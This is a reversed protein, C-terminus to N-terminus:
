AGDDSFWVTIFAAQPVVVGIGHIVECRYNSEFDCSVLKVVNWVWPACFLAATAIRKLESKSM